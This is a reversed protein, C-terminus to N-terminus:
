SARDNVAHLVLVNAEDNGAAAQRRDYRHDLQIGGGARLREERPEATDYYGASDIYVRREVPLGVGGRLVAVGFAVSKLHGDYLGRDLPLNREETDAAAHLDHVHGEAAAQMLIRGTAGRDLNAMRAAVVSQLGEM